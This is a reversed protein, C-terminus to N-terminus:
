KQNIFKESFEDTLADLYSEFITFGQELYEKSVEMWDLPGSYGTKVIYKPDPDGYSHVIMHRRYFYEKFQKWDDRKTVDLKLTSKLYVGLDEIDSGVQSEVVKDGIANLLDGITNYRFAEPYSIGNKSSRLIEPRKRFLSILVNTIFEEFIIILYILIMESSGRRVDERHVYMEEEEDLVKGLAKGKIFYDKAEPNHYVDKIAQGYRQYEAKEEESLTKLKEYHHQKLEHLYNELTKTSLKHITRLARLKDQASTYAYALSDSFAEKDRDRRSVHHYSEAM